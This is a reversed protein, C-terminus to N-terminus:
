SFNKEEIKSTRLMLSRADSPNSTVAEVSIRTKNNRILNFDPSAKSYDIDYGFERFARNLYLEWFSSNFTTQFEKIFKTTEGSRELLGEGGNMLSKILRPTRLNMKLKGSIHTYDVKM